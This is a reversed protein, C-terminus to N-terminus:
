VKAANFFRIQFGRGAQCKEWFTVQRASPMCKM